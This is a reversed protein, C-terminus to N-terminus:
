FFPWYLGYRIESSLWAGYRDQLEQPIDFHNLTVFPEIGKALIANIVKNYFKIGALNVDGFRGEVSIKYIYLFIFSLIEKFFLFFM